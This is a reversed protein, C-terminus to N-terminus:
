YTALRACSWSYLAAFEARPRFYRMALCLAHAQMGFYSSVPACRDAEDLVVIRCSGLEFATTSGLHDTLRGPTSVVLATGKRLRAKEAKRREGGMLACTVLWPFPRALGGLAELTQVALERTPVLVLAFTGAARTVVSPGLEILRQLLPVAYAYTKGSGTHSRVVVDRGALVPPITRRQVPTMGTLGLKDLQRRLYIDVPLEGFTSATLAGAPPLKSLPLTRPLPTARSPDSKAMPFSGASSPAADEAHSLRRKPIHRPKGGERVQSGGALAAAAAGAAAEESLASALPAPGPAPTHEAPRPASKRGPDVAPVSVIHLM